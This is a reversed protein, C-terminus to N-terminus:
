FQDKYILLNKRYDFMLAQNTWFRLQLILMKRLLFTIKIASFYCKIEIFDIIEISKETNLNKTKIQSDVKSM